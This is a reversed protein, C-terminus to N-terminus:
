AVGAGGRQSVGSGGAAGRVFVVKYGDARVFLKARRGYFLQFNPLLEPFRKPVMPSREQFGKFQGPPDEQCDKSKEKDPGGPFGHM